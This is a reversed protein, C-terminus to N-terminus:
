EEWGIGAEAFAARLAAMRAARDFRLVGSRWEVRADGPPLAEDEALAVDLGRLLPALAQALGPAVLFRPAPLLTLRPLLQGALHRLMDPARAAALGPLAKDLMGLVLAALDRAAEQAAMGARDRAQALADTMGDLASAIREQGAEEAADRGAALGAAYGEARASEVLAALAAAEDRAADAATPDAAPPPDASAGFVPRFATELPPPPRLPAFATNM